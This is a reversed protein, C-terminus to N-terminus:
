KKKAKNAFNKDDKEPEQWEEKMSTSAEFKGQHGGTEGKNTFVKLEESLNLDEMSYVLEDLENM